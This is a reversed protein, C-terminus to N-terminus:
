IKTTITSTLIIYKYQRSRVVANKTALLEKRVDAM